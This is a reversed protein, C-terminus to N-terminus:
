IHNFEILNSWWNLYNFLYIFLLDLTMVWSLKQELQFTWCLKPATGNTLFTKKFHTKRDEYIIFNWFPWWKVYYFKPEFTHANAVYCESQVRNPDLRHTIKIKNSFFFPFFFNYIGIIINFIQVNITQKHNKKINVTWSPLITFIAM